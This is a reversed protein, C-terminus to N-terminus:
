SLLALAGIVAGAALIGIWLRRKEAAIGVPSPAPYLGADGLYKGGLTYQILGLTMGIGALGFGWHWNSREGVYGCVLPSILGGSASFATRSGDGRCAACTCWRPTCGM